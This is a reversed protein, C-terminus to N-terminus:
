NAEFPTETVSVLKFDEFSVPDKSETRICVTVKTHDDLYSGILWSDGQYLDFKNNSFVVNKQVINGQYVDPTDENFDITFFYKTGKIDFNWHLSKRNAYYTGGFDFEINETSIWPLKQDKLLQGMEQAFIRDFLIGGKSDLYASYEAESKEAVDIFARLDELSDFVMIPPPSSPSTPAKSANVGETGSSHDVSTGCSMLMALLFAILVVIALFTRKKM